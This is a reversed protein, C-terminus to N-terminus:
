PTPTSRTTQGSNPVPGLPNISPSTWGNYINAIVKYTTPSSSGTFGILTNQYDQTTPQGSAYAPPEIGLQKVLMVTLDGVTAPRTTDSWGGLPSVPPQHGPQDGVQNGSLWSIADAERTGAFPPSLSRAFKYAVQALTMPNGDSDLM